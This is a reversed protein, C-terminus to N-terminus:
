VSFKAEVRSPMPAKKPLRLKTNWKPFVVLIVQALKSGTLALELAQLALAVVVVFEGVLETVLRLLVVVLALLM